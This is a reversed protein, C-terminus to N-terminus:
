LVSCAEARVLLQFSLVEPSGDSGGVPRRTEFDLAVDFLASERQIHRLYKCFFYSNQEGQRRKDSIFNL